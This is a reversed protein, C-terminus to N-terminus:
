DGVRIYIIDANRRPKHRAHYAYIEKDLSSLDADGGYGKEADLIDQDGEPGAATNRQVYVSLAPTVEACEAIERACVGDLLVIPSRRSAWAIAEKLRDVRLAGVYRDQKRELHQDAEVLSVIDTGLRCCICHGLTTKGSQTCGDLLVIGAGISAILEAVRAPDSTTEKHQMM